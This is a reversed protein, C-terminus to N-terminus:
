NGHIIKQLKLMESKYHANHPHNRQMFPHDKQYYKEIEQRAQEPTMGLSGKIQGEFKDEMMGDAIKAFVKAMIPNDLLGAKKMEGIEDESAFRELAGFAMKNKHDYADGWEAKLGERAQTIESEMRDRASKVSDGMFNNVFDSVAQAQKPLLGAKYMHESFGKFFEEDAEIGEAVNNKIGYETFDSPRGLKNYVDNWQEETFTEDPITIGSKGVMSKTHVYSKMLKAYDFKGEDNAFSLLSKNGQLGEEMGSPYDYTIGGSGGDGPNGGSAPPTGGSSGDGGDGGAGMFNGSDNSLIRLLFNFTTM